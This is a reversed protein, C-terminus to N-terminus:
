STSTPGPSPGEMSVTISCPSRDARLRVDVKVAVTGPLVVAESACGLSPSMTAEGVDSQMTHVVVFRYPGPAIRDRSPTGTGTVPYPGDSSTNLDVTFWIDGVGPAWGTPAESGPAQITLIAGCGRWWPGCVFGSGTVTLTAAATAPTPDLTAQLSPSPPPPVSCAGILAFALFLGVVRMM